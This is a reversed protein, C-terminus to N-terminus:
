SPKSHATLCIIDDHIEVLGDRILGHYAQDFHGGISSKLPEIGCPGKALQRVISGRAQRLSGDFKAQKTYHRSSTISGLSRSKLHAGYDMLAWYWERPRDTDLTQRVAEIIDKDDVGSEGHFFEHIYVTRINTEVFVVPQNYAYAMIAGATNAGIGPLAILAERSQPIGEQAIMRAAEHLYKARRNYGLGQWAILVDALPAGALKELTPFRQMFEHFKPIVRAVQTQQLMLESVLVAYFGHDDRWPMKRGHQRYYRWVNKRFTIIQGTTRIM